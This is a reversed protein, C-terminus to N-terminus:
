MIHTEQLARSLGLPMRSIGVSIINCTRLPSPPQPPTTTPIAKLRSCDNSKLNECRQSHLTRDELFHRRTTQYLPGFHTLFTSSWRLISSREAQIFSHILPLGQATRAGRCDTIQQSGGRNRVWLLGVSRVFHLIKSIPANQYDGPGMFYHGLHRCRLHVIAECDCLIRTAPKDKELCRECTPKDTIGM